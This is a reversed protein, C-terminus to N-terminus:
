VFYFLLCLDALTLIMSLYDTSVFSYCIHGLFSRNRGVAVFMVLILEIYRSKLVPHIEKEEKEEKGKGDEKGKGKEEKRKGKEEEKGKRKEEEKGKGQEEESIQACIFVETLSVYGHRSEDM